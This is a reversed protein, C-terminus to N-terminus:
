LCSMYLKHGGSLRCGAGAARGGGGGGRESGGV